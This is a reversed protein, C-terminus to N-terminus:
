ATVSGEVMKDFVVVADDLRSYQFDYCDSADIVRSLGEFGKRGLVMYNFSNRGLELKTDSLSAVRGCIESVGGL